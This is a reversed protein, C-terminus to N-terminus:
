SDLGPAPPVPTAVPGHEPAYTTAPGTSETAWHVPQYAVTGVAPPALTTNLAPSAATSGGPPLTNRAEGALVPLVLLLLSLVAPALAARVGARPRRVPATRIAQWWQDVKGPPVPTSGLVLRLDGALREYRSLKERCSSCRALHQRVRAAQRAPLQGSTYAALLHEVHRNLLSDFARSM